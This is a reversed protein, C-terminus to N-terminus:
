QQRLQMLVDVAAIKTGFLNHWIAAANKCKNPRDTQRHTAYTQTWHVYIMHHMYADIQMSYQETSSGQARKNTNPM